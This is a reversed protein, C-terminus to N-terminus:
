RKGLFRWGLGLKAEFVHFNTTVGDITLVFGKFDFLLGASVDVGHASFDKNTIYDGEWLQWDASRMGYGLGAKAYIMENIRFIAGATASVVTYKYEPNYFPLIDGVFGGKDSTGISKYGMYDFDLGTMLSVFWGYKKYQGFTVGLSPIGGNTLAGNITFFTKWKDKKGFKYGKGKTKKPELPKEEATFKFRIEPYDGYGLDKFANWRVVRSKGPTVVKNIFGSVSMTDTYTKGDDISIQLKVISRKKLDYTVTVEKDKQWAKINNVNEQAKICVASLVICLMIIFRTKRM